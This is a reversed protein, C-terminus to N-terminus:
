PPLVIAASQLLLLQTASLAIGLEKVVESAGSPATSTIEGVTTSVYYRVGPDLGLADTGLADWQALTLEVIDRVQVVATGDIAAAEALMGITTGCTSAASADAADIEGDTKVYVPTGIPLIGANANPASVLRVAIEDTLANQTARVEAIVQEHDEADPRRETITADPRSPSSGDWISTPYQAINDRAM